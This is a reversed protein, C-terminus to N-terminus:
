ILEGDEKVGDPLRCQVQLREIAIESCQDAARVGHEGALVQRPNPALIEGEVALFLGRCNQVQDHPVPVRYGRFQVAAQPLRM